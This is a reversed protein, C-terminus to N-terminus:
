HTHTHAHTDIYIQTETHLTTHKFKKRPSLRVTCAHTHLSTCSKTARENTLALLGSGSYKRSVMDEEREEGNEAPRSTGPRVTASFKASASEARGFACIHCLKADECRVLERAVVRQETVFSRSQGVVIDASSDVLGHLSLRLLKRVCGRPLFRFVCLFSRIGGM